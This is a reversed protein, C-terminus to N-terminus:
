PASQGATVPTRDTVAAPAQSRSRLSGPLWRALLAALASFGTAWWFAIGFGRALDGHHAAVASALLRGAGRHRVLWRAAPGDPDARQRPAIERKDLGTFSVAM